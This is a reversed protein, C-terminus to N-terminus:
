RVRRVSEIIVPERPMNPLNVADAVSVAGIRDLVDLGATVKGFVCYGYKELGGPQYDLSANDALNFFFQSTASDVLDGPRAMAITGRVNKLANQAENRIPFDAPVPSLDGHYGGALAMFGRDVQHFITDDYANKSVYSLFNDVSLPAEARDLEVTIAGLSTTIVVVPRNTAQPRGSDGGDDTAATGDADISATPPVADGATSGCGANLLNLLCFLVALLVKPHRAVIIQELFM